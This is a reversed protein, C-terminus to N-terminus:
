LINSGIVIVSIDIGEIKKLERVCEEITFGTTIVDDILLVKKNQLMKKDKVTFAGKINKERDTKSLIKQEKVHNSKSIVDLYTVKLEKSIEKALFECQNFGKEKLRKKSSPIYVIYEFLMNEDKIKKAVLDALIKGSNFDSKYKLNFILEKIAYSYYACSYVPVEEIYDISNVEKITDKCKKCLGGDELETNCCLCIDPIPYIISLFSDKLYELIKIRRQGM